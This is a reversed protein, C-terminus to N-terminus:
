QEQHGLLDHEDLRRETVEQAEEELVLEHDHIWDGEHNDRNDRDLCLPARVRLHIPGGGKSPRPDQFPDLCRRATAWLTTPESRDGLVSTLVLTLISTLISMLLM